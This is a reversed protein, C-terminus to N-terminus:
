RSLFSCRDSERALHRTIGGLVWEQFRSHGYAGAIVIGAGVRAAIEELEEATNTKPEPVLTRAVVGHGLLWAAVDKVHTLADSHHSGNKPIEAITVDKAAALLPLADSVARRAERVDKWAVLVSRLDLWTVAPPVVILPRGAQMVVGSPDAAICPDVVTESRAGIVVIDAARAEQAVYSTALTRASRWEACKARRGLSSRFESELEFLRTRIAADEQKIVNQAYEGEAFYLPPRLDSAAVGIVRAEYREALDGAVALCADNPQDLALSVMVTKYM